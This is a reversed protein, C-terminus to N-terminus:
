ATKGGFTLEELTKSEKAKSAEKKGKEYVKVGQCWFYALGGLGGPMFHDIVRKEVELELLVDPNLEKMTKVRSIEIMLDRVADQLSFEVDSMTM